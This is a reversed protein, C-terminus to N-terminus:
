KNETLIEASITLVVSNPITNAIITINKSEMGSKGSSDFTVDISGKADPEVAEKTYHPITCGCTAKATKIVLPATGTNTFVFSYTVKEGAQIEGFHHRTKEFDFM